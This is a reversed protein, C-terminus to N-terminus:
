RRALEYTAPTGPDNRGAIWMVARVPQLTREVSSEVQETLAALDSETRLRASTVELIRQADYRARNFRRDVTAQIRRRAPGFLAAVLLTSLAIAASSNDDGGLSRAISSVAVVGVAYVGVLVATVLGWSLTRSIIRDIDYLRYRLIAIAASAPIAVWLVQSVAAVIDNDAIGLGLERGVEELLLVIVWCAFTFTFWKLQQREVGQARIFRVVLSAVSLFIFGLFAVFMPASVSGYELNPVGDVGLPNDVWRVCSNTDDIGACFSEQIPAVVAFLALLGVGLRSLWRWRPSPVRGTPFLLPLFGTLLLLLTFFTAFGLSEFIAEMVSLDGDVHTPSIAASVGAISGIVATAALVWSVRNDPRRAMLVPGILGVATIGALTGWEHEESYLANFISALLVFSAVAAAPWKLGNM